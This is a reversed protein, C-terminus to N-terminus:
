NAESILEDIAESDAEFQPHATDSDPAKDIEDLLLELTTKSRCAILLKDGDKM